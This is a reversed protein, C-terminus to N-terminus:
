SFLSLWDSYLLYNIASGIVTLLCSYVLLCLGRRPLLAVDDANLGTWMLLLTSAIVKNVM